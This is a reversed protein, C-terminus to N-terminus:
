LGSAGGLSSFDKTQAAPPATVVVQKGFDSMTMTTAGASGVSAKAQVVHGASDFWVDETLTGAMGGMPSASPSGMAQMMKKTDVNLTYHQGTSDTGVYKASKLADGLKTVMALPDTMSGLSSMGAASGLQQPTAKLWTGGMGSAPPLKMYVTNDVLRVEVSMGMLTMTLDETMPKTQVDGQGKISQGAAAISMVVHASQTIETAHQLKQAMTAAVSTGPAATESTTAGPNSGAGPATSAGASAGPTPSTGGVGPWVPSGTAGTATSTTASSGCAVLGTGLVLTTLTVAAGRRWTSNM